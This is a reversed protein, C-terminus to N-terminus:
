RHRYAQLVTPGGFGESSQRGKWGVIPASLNYGLHKTDGTFRICGRVLVALGNEIYWKVRFEPM